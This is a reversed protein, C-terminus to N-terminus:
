TSASPGAQTVGTLVTGDVAPQDGTYTGDVPGYSSSQRGILEAMVANSLPPKTPVMLLPPTSNADSAATPAAASAQTVASAKTAASTLNLQASAIGSLESTVSSSM